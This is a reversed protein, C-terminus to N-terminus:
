NTPPASYRDFDIGGRDIISRDVNNISIAVLAQWIFIAALVVVIALGIRRVWKAAKLVEEDTSKKMSGSIVFTLVLVVIAAGLFSIIGPQLFRLLDEM